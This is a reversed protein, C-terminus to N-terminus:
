LLTGSKLTKCSDGVMGKRWCTGCTNCKPDVLRLISRTNGPAAAVSRSFKLQRKRSIQWTSQLTTRWSEVAQTSFITIWNRIWGYVLSGLNWMAIELGGLFWLDVLPFGPLDADARPTRTKEQRNKGPIRASNPSDPHQSSYSPLQSFNAPWAPASLSPGTHSVAHIDSHICVYVRVSNHMCAHIYHLTIYHLAICHLTICHLAISHLTICHLAIYHLTICHLTICHLAICHLAIYHLAICHLTICHLAICHLTIYHLAIYHLTIYTNIHVSNCM